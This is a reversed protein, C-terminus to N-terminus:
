NTIFAITEDERLVAIELLLDQAAQYIQEDPSTIDFGAAQLETSYALLDINYDFEIKVISKEQYVQTYDARIYKGFWFLGAMKPQMYKTFELNLNMLQILNAIQIVNQALTARSPKTLSFHLEMVIKGTQSYGFSHKESNVPYCMVSPRQNSALDDKPYPYQAKIFVQKTWTNIETMYEILLFCLQNDIGNTLPLAVTRSTM